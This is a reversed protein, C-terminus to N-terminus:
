ESSVTRRLTPLVPAFYALRLPSAVTATFLLIVPRAIRCRRIRRTTRPVADRGRRTM